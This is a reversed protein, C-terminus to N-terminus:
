CYVKLEEFYLILQNADSFYLDYLNKDDISACQIADNCYRYIKGYYMDDPIFRPDFTNNVSNYLNLYEETPYINSVWFKRVIKKQDSTLKGFSIYSSKMSLEKKADLVRPVQIRYKIILDYIKLIRNM